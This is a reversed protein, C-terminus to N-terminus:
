EFPQAVRSREDDATGRADPMEARGPLPPRAARTPRRAPAVRLGHRLALEEELAAAPPADGRALAASREFRREGPDNPLNPGPDPDDDPRRRARDEPSDRERTRRPAAQLDRRAGIALEPSRVDVNARGARDDDGSRAHVGLRQRACAGHADATDDDGREAHLLLTIEERRLTSTAGGNM